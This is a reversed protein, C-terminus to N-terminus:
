GGGEGAYVGNLALNKELELFVQVRAGDQILQDCYEHVVDAGKDILLGQRLLPAVSEFASQRPEDIAVLKIIHYGYESKLVDSVEGPQMEMAANAMFPPLKEIPLMGMDGGEAADPAHSMNKAVSEFRQGAFIHNIAEDAKKAALEQKEAASGPVNRPNIFIQKIHIRAPAAHEDKQAEYAKRIEDDTITVGEERIVMARMKETVLARELEDMVEERRTYGMRKLIEKEELLEGERRKLSEQM